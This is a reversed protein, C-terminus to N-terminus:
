HSNELPFHLNGTCSRQTWGHVGSFGGHFQVYEQPFSSMFFSGLTTLCSLHGLSIRLDDDWRGVRGVGWQALAALSMIVVATLEELIGFSCLVALNLVRPDSSIVYAEEDVGRSKPERKLGKRSDVSFECICYPQAESSHGRHSALTHRPAAVLGGM